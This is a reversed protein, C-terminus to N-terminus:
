AIIDAIYRWEWVDGDEPDNVVGTFAFGNKQLLRNSFNVEPLTKATVIVLPDTQLALEVLKRCIQGGIGKHQYAEFTGYAIEVTNNVPKGKFAAAGVLEGGDEVYYSIWPPNYGVRKYFNLTMGLSGDCLPNVAFAKNEEITPLIPLLQM